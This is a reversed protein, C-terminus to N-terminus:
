IGLDYEKIIKRIVQYKAIKWRKSLEELKVDEDDSFFINATPM